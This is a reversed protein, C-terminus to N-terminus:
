IPWDKDVLYECFQYWLEVKTQDTPPNTMPFLGGQGSYRYGRWVFTHIVEDIDNETYESADSADKLGLNELFHWFWFQVSDGAMFQTRRAFAVLMEFVSCGLDNWFPDDTVNLQTLFEDRLELGDEARNDDGSLLWVYETNHLQRFLKWYSTSPTPNEVYIVKACLWNFYVHEIPETM